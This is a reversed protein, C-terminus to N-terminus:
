AISHIVHAGTYNSPIPIKNQPLVNSLILSLDQAPGVAVILPMLSAVVVLLPQKPL